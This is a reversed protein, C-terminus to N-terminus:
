QTRVCPHPGALEQRWQDDLTLEALSSPFMDGTDLRSIASIRGFLTQLQIHLTKLHHFQPLSALRSDPGTHSNCEVSDYFDLHLHRITSARMLLGSDLNKTPSDSVFLEQSHRRHSVRLVQLQQTHRCLYYLSQPGSSSADLRVEQVTGLYEAPPPGPGISSDEEGDEELDEEVQFWLNFSAEDGYCHLRILNSTRLLPWYDQHDFGMDQEDEDLSRLAAPLHRDLCLQISALSCSIGHGQGHDLTTPTASSDDFHRNEAIMAMLASYEIGERSRPVLLSLVTLPTSRYLIDFLVLQPVDRQTILNQYLDRDLPSYELKKKALNVMGQVVTERTLTVWCAMQRIFHGLGSRSKLSRWLLLLSDAEWIVVTQFLFPRTLADLRKSMLCLHFLSSRGAIYSAPPTIMTQSNEVIDKCNPLELTVSALIRNWIETPLYKPSRPGDM